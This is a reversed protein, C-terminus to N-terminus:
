IELARLGCWRLHLTRLPGFSAISTALLPDPATNLGLVPAQTSAGFTMLIHVQGDVSCGCFSTTPTGLLLTAMGRKPAARTGDHQLNWTLSGDLTWLDNLYGGSPGGGFM